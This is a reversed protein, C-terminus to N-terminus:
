SCGKMMMKLAVDGDYGYNDNNISFIPMSPVIVENLLSDQVPVKMKKGYFDSSSMLKDHAQM